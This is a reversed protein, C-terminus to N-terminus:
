VLINQKQLHRSILHSKYNYKRKTVFNCYPCKFSPLKGCEYTKHNYLSSKQKYSKNCDNCTYLNQKSNEILSSSYNM